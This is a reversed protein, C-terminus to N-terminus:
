LVDVNKDTHFTSEDQMQATGLDGPSQVMKGVVAEKEEQLFLGLTSDCIVLYPGGAYDM